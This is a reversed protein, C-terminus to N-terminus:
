RHRRRDFSYSSSPFNIRAGFTEIVAIIGPNLEKGTITRIYKL